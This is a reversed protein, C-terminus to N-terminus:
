ICVKFSGKKIDNVGRKHEALETNEKIEHGIFQAGRKIEYGLYEAGKKLEMKAEGMKSLKNYSDQVHFLYVTFKILKVNIKIEITELQIHDLQPLSDIEFRLACLYLMDRLDLIKM